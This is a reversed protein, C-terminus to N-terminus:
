CRDAVFSRQEFAEKVSPSINHPSLNHETVYCETQSENREKMEKRKKHGEELGSTEM